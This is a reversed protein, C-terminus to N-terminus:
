GGGQVLRMSNLVARAGVVAAAREITNMSPAKAAIMEALEEDSLVSAAPLIFHPQDNQHMPKDYLPMWGHPERFTWVLEAKGHKVVGRCGCPKTNSVTWASDMMEVCGMPGHLSMSHGCAACEKGNESGIM